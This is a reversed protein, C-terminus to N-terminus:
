IPPWPVAPWDGSPEPFKRNKMLKEVRKFLAAIEVPTLLETLKESIEAKQSILNQLQTLETESLETGRWQWLVTRLKDDAHLSAGHDIAYLQSTADMLLHGIKRDTNNIIADFFAVTRLQNDNSQAYSIVDFSEDIEIWEQVAGFGYPGDRLITFPVIQLSLELNILYAAVERSALNGDPFDWLPREGAIPKYIIPIEAGNALSIVTGFLTANSADILRGTISIQSEIISKEIFQRGAGDM